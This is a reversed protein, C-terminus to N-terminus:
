ASARRAVAAWLTYFPHTEAVGRNAKVQVVWNKLFLKETQLLRLAVSRYVGQSFDPLEAQALQVTVVTETQLPFFDHDPFL